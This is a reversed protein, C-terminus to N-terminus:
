EHILKVNDLYFNAETAGTPLNGTFLIRYEFLDSAILDDTLSIYIKNWDEKPNLTIKLFKRPTASNQEYGILGVEFLADNKYHMELFTAGGKTPLQYKEQTAIEAHTNDENVSFKLSRGDFAGNTTVTSFTLSDDDADFNIMNGLDFDEVLAFTGLNNYASSPTITVVEGADLNVQSSYRTFFKYIDPTAAIGNEKIGPDIDVKTEGKAIVPITKPLEYVGIFEDNIYLYGDTIKSEPSGQSTSTNVDFNEIRIYAPIPEDPNIVDCTMFSLLTIAFIYNKLNKM